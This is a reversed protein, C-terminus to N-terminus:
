ASWSPTVTLKRSAPSSNEPTQRGTAMATPTSAHYDGREAIPADVIGLLAKDGLHAELHRRAHRPRRHGEGVLLKRQAPQPGRHLLAVQAVGLLRNPRHHAVAHGGPQVHRGM